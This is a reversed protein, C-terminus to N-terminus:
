HMVQFNWGFIRKAGEVLRPGPRNLLSDDIVFVHNQKVARLEHWGVRDTLLEKKAVNGAGCISLVILDPDFAQVEHLSVERSPLNKGGNNVTSQENKMALPIGGAIRVVEPVWNGSVMPPNHWEEVYVTPKRSFMASKRKTDNFGQTMTQILAHARAECSLIIGIERISAYIEAISRPDQHVVGFDKQRLEEALKAQVLTSTFVVEPSYERLEESNIKQHDKLHPIAKAVDPFDSFHDTCVINKQQELAFLIETVAPSLSAIRM